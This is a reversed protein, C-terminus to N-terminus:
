LVDFYFTAKIRKIVMVNVIARSDL